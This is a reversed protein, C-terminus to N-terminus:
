RRGFQSLISFCEEALSYERKEEEKLSYNRVEDNELTPMNDEEKFIITNGNMEIDFYDTYAEYKKNLFGICRQIWVAVMPDDSAITLERSDTETNPDDNDITCQVHLRNQIFARADDVLHNYISQIESKHPKLTSKKDKQVEQSIENFEDLSLDIM